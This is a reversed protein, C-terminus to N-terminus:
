KTSSIPIANINRYVSNTKFASKPFLKGRTRIIVAVPLKDPSASPTNMETTIFPVSFRFVPTRIANVIIDLKKAPIYPIVIFYTISLFMGIIFLIFM